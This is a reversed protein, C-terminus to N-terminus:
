NETGALRRENMGGAPAEAASQGAPPTTDRAPPGEGYYYPYEPLWSGLWQLYTVLCMGDRNPYGKEDFFWPYTPMVSTPVVSVPDYLHALHWDNSRRAGERILDPGVRRTGFLVPRQLENQYEWAHSVPGWRESERSVPRVQQSHCHWCGEAVYVKHGRRLAEAYSTRSVSGFYQKFPEPFRESLDVFDHVYGQEAIQEVTLEPQDWYILWPLLGMVLFALAFFGLGAIVMVGSKTEFM